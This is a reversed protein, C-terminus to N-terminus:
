FTRRVAARRAPNTDSLMWPRAPSLKRGGAGGEIVEGLDNIGYSATEGTPLQMTVIELKEARSATEAARAREEEAIRREEARQEAEMDARIKANFQDRSQTLGANFEGVDQMQAGRAVRAAAEAKEQEKPALEEARRKNVGGEVYGGLARELGAGVQDWPNEVYIQSPGVRQGQPMARGRMSAAMQAQRDFKSQMGSLDQNATMYDQMSALNNVGQPEQQGPAPVGLAALEAQRKLREDEYMMSQAYPNIYQAM